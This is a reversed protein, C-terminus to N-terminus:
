KKFLRDPQDDYDHIGLIDTGVSEWGDNGIVPRTPDLTKTPNYMALLCNQHSAKEALDPVGWSENFPVWVAVCPHNMDRDIVEAWQQIVREVSDHTFRYASGRRLDGHLLHADALSIGVLYQGPFEKDVDNLQAIAAELHGRSTFEREVKEIANIIANLTERSPKKLITGLREGSRM